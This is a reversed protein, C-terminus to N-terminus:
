ILGRADFSVHSQGASLKRKKEENNLEMIAEAFRAKYKESQQDEQLYDFCRHLAGFLLVRENQDKLWNGVELVYRVYSGSLEQYTRKELFTLADYQAQTKVDYTEPAAQAQALTVTSPVIQRADLAALRRYYFLELTDGTNLLEGAILIHSGKRTFYGSNHTSDNYDYFTKTDVTENYVTDRYASHNNVSPIGTTALIAFSNQNTDTITVAGVVSGVEPRNISGMSRLVIFSVTDNPVAFTANSIGPNTDNTDFEADKVVYTTVATYVGESTKTCYTLPESGRVVFYQSFELPPIELHRYAEDASYRLSSQIISDPLVTEERNAWDRVMKVLNAYTAM